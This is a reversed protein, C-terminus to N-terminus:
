YEKFRYGIGWSTIIYHPNHLDPEIKGRLRNIHSNVTHEYGSFDYGWVESLLEKRSYSKGPNSALLYLLDFEKPTLELRQGKQMVKRKAPDILLGELTIIERDEQSFREMRRLLAKVRAIFERISFPKTLYDDAGLELGLIKDMEESKATLILIPSFVHNSRLMRCIELGDLEPLMLDLVILNFNHQTALKVAEYGLAQQVQCNIDELHISILEVLNKDDEIVLVKKQM